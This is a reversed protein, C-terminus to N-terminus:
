EGLTNKWSLELLSGNDRQKLLRGKVGVVRCIVPWNGIEVINRLHKFSQEEGAEVWMNSGRWMEVMKLRSVALKM